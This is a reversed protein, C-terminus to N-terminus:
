EGSVNTLHTKDSGFLLPIVTGGEPVVNQTEWWRNATCIENYIRSGGSNFM